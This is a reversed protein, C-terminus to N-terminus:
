EEECGCTDKRNNSIGPFDRGGRVDDFDRDRRGDGDCDRRDRDFDRDGRIGQDRCGRHHGCGPRGHNSCSGNNGCCGLLLLLIWCSNM